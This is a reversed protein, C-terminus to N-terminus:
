ATSARPFGDPTSTTSSVPNKFFPARETPTARCYEARGAPDLITLDPNEKGIHATPTMRQNIAFEIQGLV